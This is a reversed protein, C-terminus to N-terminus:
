FYVKVPQFRTAPRAGERGHRRVVRDLHLAQDLAVALLDGEVPDVEVDGASGHAAQEARVAGALGGGDADQRGERHGVPARGAHRADVDGLVGHGDAAQQAQGRLLRRDVAQQGPALVEHHDALQVVQSAADGPRAGVLQQALEIELVGAAPERLGVRAAHAAPEVQGRREDGPRLDEEEVLRGGPEVRTGAGLQPAHELREHVLPHGDQEGGLVQLLGVAEGVVDHDDVVPAHDGAAVRARQLPPDAARLHERGDGVRDVELRDDVV